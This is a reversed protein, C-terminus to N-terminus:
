LPRRAGCGDHEAVVHLPGVSVVRNDFNEMEITETWLKGNLSAVELLDARFAMMRFLRLKRDFSWTTAPVMSSDVLGVLLSWSETASSQSFLSLLRSLESESRLRPRSPFPSQRPAPIGLWLVGFFCRGSFEGPRPAVGDWTPSDGFGWPVLMPGRAPAQSAPM